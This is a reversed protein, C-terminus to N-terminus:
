TIPKMKWAWKSSWSSTNYDHISIPFNRCTLLDLIRNCRGPLSGDAQQFLLVDSHPLQVGQGQPKHRSLRAPSFFMLKFRNGVNVIVSIPIQHVRLLFIVWFEVWEWMNNSGIWAWSATESPLPLIRAARLNRSRCLNKMTGVIKRRSYSRTWWCRMSRIFESASPGIKWM